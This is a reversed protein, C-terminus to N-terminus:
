GAMGLAAARDRDFWWTLEPAYDYAPTEPPRGFIDWHAVRHHAGFWSPVVYHSARLIRDIARLDSM